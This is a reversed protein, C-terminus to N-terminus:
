QKKTKASYLAHSLFKYTTLSSCNGIMSAVPEGQDDVVVLTPLAFIRYKKYLQTVLAPNTGQEKQWDKIRIPMFHADIIQAIQPNNLSSSEMKKCPDSWDAAFECLVCKKESKGKAILKTLEAPIADLPQAAAAQPLKPPDNSHRIVQPLDAPMTQWGLQSATPADAHTAAFASSGLDFIRVSLLIVTAVLLAKPMTSVTKDKTQEM